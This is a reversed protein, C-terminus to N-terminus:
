LLMKQDEKNSSNCFGGSERKERKKNTLTKTNQKDKNKNKNKNKTKQKQKQKKKNTKMQKKPSITQPPVRWMLCLHYKKNSISTCSSIVSLSLPFVALSSASTAASTARSASDSAFARRVIVWRM